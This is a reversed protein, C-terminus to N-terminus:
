NHFAQRVREGSQYVEASCRYAASAPTRTTVTKVLAIIRQEKIWGSILEYMDGPLFAAAAATSKRLVAADMPAPRAM